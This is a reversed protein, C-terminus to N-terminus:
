RRIRLAVGATSRQMRLYRRARPLATTVGVALLSLLTLGLLATATVM